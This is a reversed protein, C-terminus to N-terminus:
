LQTYGVKAGDLIADVILGANVCSGVDYVEKAKGKFQNTSEKNGLMPIAVIYTDAKLTKKDAPVGLLSGHFSVVGKLDAGLKAANLVMAGGFCYGIAVINDADAQPYKNIKAIAADLRSKAMQPDKYFPTAMDMAEKPTTANIGQGFLDVAMSIYGLGALQRARSKTYDNLGWWEHVVLIGPRKEKFKDDYAIYGKLTDGGATYEVSKGVVAARSAIVGALILFLLALRM